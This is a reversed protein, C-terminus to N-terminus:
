PLVTPFVARGLKTGTPRAAAMTLVTGGNTPELRYDVLLYITSGPVHILDKTLLRSFPLWELVASTVV